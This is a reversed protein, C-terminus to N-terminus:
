LSDSLDKLSAAADDLEYKVQELEVMDKMV